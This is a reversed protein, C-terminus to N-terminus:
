TSTPGKADKNDNNDNTNDSPIRLFMEILEQATIQILAEVLDPEIPFEYDFIDLCDQEEDDCFSPTLLSAVPDASLYRVRVVKPADGTFYLYGNEFVFKLSRSTYKNGKNYLYEERSVEDYRRNTEINMVYSFLHVNLDSLPNVIKHKTRFVVCHSPFCPCEHNPVEIVELCPLVSYNIDGIKQKKKAQGTLLFNRVTKLKNYIHRSSLNSDDSQVGASYLSQVRQIIDGLRNNM